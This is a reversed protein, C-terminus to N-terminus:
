TEAAGSADIPPISRRRGDRFAPRPAPATIPTDQRGSKPFLLTRKDAPQHHGLIRKMWRNEGKLRKLCNMESLTLSRVEHSADGPRSFYKEHNAEDSGNVEQNNNLLNSRSIIKKALRNSITINVYEDIERGAALLSFRL